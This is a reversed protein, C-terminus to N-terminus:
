TQKLLSEFQEIPVPKGFLYGQYHTCGDKLLLRRQEETEVGEAIVDMELSQAIAIITRIIAKDNRDTPLDRVFSKDIKLQDVPLQKLYQLSSYGTGFDDLSFQVGIKNLANMTAIAGEIDELLAGETLELKLLKPDIAHANIAAQVQTAFGAEHFQKPSVNVSLVLDRTYANKEWSKIQACATEIVWQGIPLILGTEEALPIFHSPSVQRRDPRLWRIVAEAGLPSHSSDVQVQFYLQFEGLELAKRLESELLVRATISEQMQKDFFRLANRGSKKAQYMAIDAQKMHEDPGQQNDHFLTVGISATCHYEHSDLQYPQRLAALIKEGIVESQAAADIPQGSLDLLMVVFEDGGLRALTDGERICTELRQSVQQLLLDGTDHGLTDNLSKFNDLDIFLLAGSRINRASSVLAQKLRDMLLQRNPLGTLADHYALREIEAAAQRIETIDHFSTVFRNNKFPSTSISFIRKTIPSTIEAHVTEAANKHSEWFVKIAETEMGYLVSALQGIVPIGKRYDAIRYFADNVELIRYDIMEGDEDFVIENLAVGESLTQFILRAREESIQVIDEAQKRETIDICIGTMLSQQKPEDYTTQGITNIWRVEGDRQVIRFEMDLLTGDRVAIEFRQLTAEADEPHLISRWIEIGPVDKEPDLGFIRFLELSWDFHSTTMNWEWVGSRSTKQALELRQNTKLLVEEAQKRGTIDRYSAFFYHEGDIDIATNSVEVNIRTGDKRRHVTEFTAGGQHIINRFREQLEAKTSNVVWDAVNLKSAEKPTYGLMRCFANNAELVDGQLNMIVIGDLANIMLAKHRRMLKESEGQAKVRKAM